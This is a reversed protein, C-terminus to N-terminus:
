GRTERSGEGDPVAPSATRQERTRQAAQQLLHLLSASAESPTPTALGRELVNVLVNTDVYVLAQREAEDQDTYAKVEVIMIVKDDEDQIVIDAQREKSVMVTLRDDGAQHDQDHLFQDRHLELGDEFYRLNELAGAVSGMAREDLLRRSMALKFHPLEEPQHDLALAIAALLNEDYPRGGSIVKSLWSGVFGEPAGHNRAKFAVDDYSPRRGPVEDRWADVIARLGYPDNPGTQEVLEM